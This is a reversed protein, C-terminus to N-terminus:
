SSSKKRRKQLAERQKIEDRIREIKHLNNRENIQQTVKYNNMNERFTELFGGTQRFNPTPPRFESLGFYNRVAPWKLIEHQVLTISNTTVWYVLCSAPFNMIFFFTTVPILAVIFTKTPEPMPMMNSSSKMLYFLTLSSMMPLIYYLDPICLNTFWAIGGVEMSKLSVKAMGQLAFFVSLAVAGQAVTPGLAKLSDFERGKMVLSIENGYRELAELDRAKRARTIKEQLAQVEPMYESMKSMNKQAKIILPFCAGRAVITIAVISAWWPLGVTSHLFELANQVLSVPTMSTGLGASALESLNETVPEIIEPVPPIEFDGFTEVVEKSSHRIFNLEVNTKCKSINPASLIRSRCILHLSRNTVKNTIFSQSRIVNKAVVNFSMRSLM